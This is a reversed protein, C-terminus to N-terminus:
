FHLFTKLFSSLCMNSSYMYLASSMKNKLTNEPWSNPWWFLIIRFFLIKILEKLLSNQFVIFIQHSINQMTWQILNQNTLWKTSVRQYGCLHMPIYEPSGFSLCKRKWRYQLHALKMDWCFYLSLYNLYISTKNLVSRHIITM